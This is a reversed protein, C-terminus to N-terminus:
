VLDDCQFQRASLNVAVKHIGTGSANWEAASLSAERLVWKGLDVIPGAEEAIPIFQAPSVLGAGPRHWRLLAESGIVKHDRFSVKPQYHLELEGRGIACFRLPATDTNLSASVPRAVDRAAVGCRLGPTDASRTDAVLVL